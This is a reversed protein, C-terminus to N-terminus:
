RRTSVMSAWVMARAQPLACTSCRSGSSRTATVMSAAAIALTGSAPVSQIGPRHASARLASLVSSRKRSSRVILAGILWRGSTTMTPPPMSPAAAAHASLWRPTVSTTTASRLVTADPIVPLDLPM